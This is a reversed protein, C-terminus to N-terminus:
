RQSALARRRQAAVVQQAVVVVLAIVFLATGVVNATAPVGRQAAVYVFKPFTDFSGANFNTIIFDDISLAFALLAASLIGPLLMPFTVRWFVAARSAYLDAAAEEIQPNLGAVRAKVTVVVFSLCFLIHALLVTVFGPNQGLALFQALLSSGMVVEPTAMPLFVLYNVLGRARFRYRVLGIAMLTGLATAALTSVGGVLLSNGLAECVAPNACPNAWNEWTFGRWTLNNRGGDNFSFAVTYAIPLLLFVFGGAALLPVLWLGPRVPRRM